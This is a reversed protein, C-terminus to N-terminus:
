REKIIRTFLVVGPLPVGDGFVILKESIYLLLNITLVIKVISDIIKKCFLQFKKEFM